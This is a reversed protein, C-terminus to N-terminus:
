MLSSRMCLSVWVFLGLMKQQFEAKKKASRRITEQLLIHRRRKKPESGGSAITTSTAAMSSALRKVGRTTMQSTSATTNDEQVPPAAQQSPAEPHRRVEPAWKERWREFCDRATRKDTPITTRTANFSESILQWNYPYRDILTKLLVDDNTTWQHETARRRDKDRERAAAFMLQQQALIASNSLRNDFIEPYL